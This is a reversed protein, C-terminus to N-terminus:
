VGPHQHRRGTLRLVAMSSLHEFAKSPRSDVILDIPANLHATRNLAPGLTSSPTVNGLCVTQVKTSFPAFIKDKVENIRQQLAAIRASRDQVAKELKEVGPQQKQSEQLWNM